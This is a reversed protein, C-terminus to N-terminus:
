HFIDFMSFYLMTERTHYVYSIFGIIGHKVFSKAQVCFHDAFNQKQEWVGCHWRGWVFVFSANKEWILFCSFKYVLTASNHAFYFFVSLLSFSKRLHSLSWSVFPPLVSAPPFPILSPIFTPLLPPLHWTSCVCVSLFLVSVSRSAAPQESRFILVLGKSKHWKFCEPQQEQFLVFLWLLTLPFYFLSGM